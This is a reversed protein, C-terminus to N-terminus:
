AAYHTAGKGRPRFLTLVEIFQERAEVLLEELDSSSLDVMRRISRDIQSIYDFDDEGYEAMRSITEAVHAIAVELRYAGAEEPQHHYRAVFQHGEPFSWSRMLEAGVEAHDFGLTKQEALYMPINEEQAMLLAARYYRPLKYAMILQGINHMLGAVFLRESHLVRCREAILRSIIGTYIGHRWFEDIDVLDSSIREFIGSVTAALVLDRLERNGVIAIARSVTEVRAPFRYFASNVIKLLRATLAADQSIVKGIVSANSRPNDIMESIRICIEPLSVLGVVGQVLIEPTITQPKM